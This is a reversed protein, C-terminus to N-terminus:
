FSLIQGLCLLKPAFNNGKLASEMEYPLCVLKVTNGGKFTYWNGKIIIWEPLHMSFRSKLQHSDQNRACIHMNNYIKINSYQNRESSQIM